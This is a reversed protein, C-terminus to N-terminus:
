DTRTLGLDEYLAAFVEDVRTTHAAEGPMGNYFVAASLGVEPDCLVGSTQSGGHGFTRPSAHPGFGYPVVANGHVKADVIVGLGWDLVAGFTKDTLGTRHRSCVAEATQPSMLPRGNLYLCEVLRPIERLPGRGSAGPQCVAAAAPDDGTVIGPAPRPGSRLGTRVVDVARERLRAHEAEDVALFSETMGLPVLVDDRVIAEWPRDDGGARRVAEALIVAGAQLSYGADRGPVWGDELPEACVRAVVADWDAADTDPSPKDAGRFGGTHTLAHRVTVLQKGGQGFDPVHLSLPDDLSLWGAEWAMAVRLALSVKTMSMWPVVADPTMEVGDRAEGVAAEGAPEADLNAVLAAGPTSGDSRHRELVETVRALEDAAM